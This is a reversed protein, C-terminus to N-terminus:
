PAGTISYSNGVVLCDHGFLNLGVGGAEGELGLYSGDPAVASTEDLDDYKASGAPSVFDTQVIVQQGANLPLNGGSSDSEDEEFWGFESSTAVIEIRDLFTGGELQYM